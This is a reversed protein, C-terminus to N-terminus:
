KQRSVIEKSTTNYVIIELISAYASLFCIFPHFLWIKERDTVAGYIGVTLPIFFSFAYFPWLKMKMKQSGSLRNTRSAIGYKKRELANRTAWRQKRIFHDMSHVTRHYLPVSYVYALKKKKDVLDLIPNIDDFQDEKKRRFGQRVAFGQALAIMPRTDNSSYDYVDYTDTHDLTKYIKHFTRSNAAYGYVFHNYPDTFTNTYKTYLTDNKTSAHKPFAAYIDKDEFVNAFIKLSKKNNLFNDVALIMMLDGKAISMGITIAPEALREPNNVIKVKFTKAIELTKDSSGGDIILIEILEKPYKQKDLKELFERIMEQNNYTPTLISIKQLSKM